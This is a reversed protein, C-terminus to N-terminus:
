EPWDSCLVFNNLIAAPPAYDLRHSRAVARRLENARIEPAVSLVKAVLNALRNRATWNSSLWEKEDDLWLVEPIFTLLQRLSGVETEYLGIEAAIRNVTTCGSSGSHRRLTLVARDEKGDLEPNALFLVTGGIRVRPLKTERKFIRIPLLGLDAIDIL